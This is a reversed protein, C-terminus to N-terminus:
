NDGLLDIQSPGPEHDHVQVVSYSENIFVGSPDKVQRIRLTVRLVDGSGLMVERRL